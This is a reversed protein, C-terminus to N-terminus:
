LDEYLLSMGFDRFMTSLPSDNMGGWSWDLVLPLSVELYVKIRRKDVSLSLRQHSDDQQWWTRGLLHRRHPCVGDFGDSCGVM